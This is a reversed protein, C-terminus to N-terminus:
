HQFIRILWFRKNLLEREVNQIKERLKSNFNEDWNIFLVYETRQFM